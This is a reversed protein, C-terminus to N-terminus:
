ESVGWGDKPTESVVRKHVWNYFEVNRMKGDPLTMSAYPKGTAALLHSEVCMQDNEPNVTLMERLSCDPLTGKLNDPISCIFTLAYLDSPECLLPYKSEEIHQALDYDIDPHNPFFKELSDLADALWVGVAVGFGFMQGGAVIAGDDSSHTHHHNRVGLRDGYIEDVKARIQSADRMGGLYLGTLLERTDASIWRLFGIGLLAHGKEDCIPIEGQKDMARKALSIVSQAYEERERRMRETDFGLVECFWEIPKSELHQGAFDGKGCEAHGRLRDLVLHRKLGQTCHVDTKQWLDQFASRTIREKSGM